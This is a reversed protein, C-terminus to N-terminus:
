SRGSITSRYHEAVRLWEDRDAFTRVPDLPADALGSGRLVELGYTVTGGTGVAISCVLVTGSPVHHEVRRWSGAMVAAPDPEEVLWEQGAARAASLRAEYDGAATSASIERCRVASAADVLTEPAFGLLPLGAAAAREPLTALLTERRQLVAEIDPCSSRLDTLLLGCLELGRQYGEPDFAAAPFLRGEAATFRALAETPIGSTSRDAM